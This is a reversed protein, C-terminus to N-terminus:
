TQFSTAGNFGAPRACTPVIETRTEVDSFIHSWQLAGGRPKRTPRGCRKWTQFSTAGNFCAAEAARRVQLPPNGRRFLHPEMSAVCSSSDWDTFPDGNGRRFLHPEM